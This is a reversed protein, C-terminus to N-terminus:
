QFIVIRSEHIFGTVGDSLKIKKFDGETGIVEFKENDYVKRIIEGNPMKRLNSFGDPDQIKYYITEINNNVEENVLTENAEDTQATDTNKV